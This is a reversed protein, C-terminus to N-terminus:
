LRWSEETYERTVTPVADPIHTNVLSPEQLTVTATARNNGKRGVSIDLREIDRGIYRSIATSIEEHSLTINM